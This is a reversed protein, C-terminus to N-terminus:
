SAGRRLKNLNEAVVVPQGIWCCRLNGPTMHWTIRGRKVPADKGCHPCHVRQAPKKM